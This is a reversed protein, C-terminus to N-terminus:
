VNKPRNRLFKEWEVFKKHLSNLTFHPIQHFVPFVVGRRVQPKIIIVCKCMKIVGKSIFFLYYYLYYIKM